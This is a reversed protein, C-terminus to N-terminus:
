GQFVGENPDIGVCFNNLLREKEGGQFSGKGKANEIMPRLAVRAPHIGASHIEIIAGLDNIKDLFPVLDTFTGHFFARHGIVLM